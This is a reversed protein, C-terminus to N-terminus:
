SRPRSPVLQRASPSTSCNVPRCPSSRAWPCRRTALDRSPVPAGALRAAANLLSVLRERYLPLRAEFVAANYHVLLGLPLLAALFAVGLLPYSLWPSVRWRAVANAAPRLLFFLFFAILLPALVPEMVSLAAGVVCVTLLVLCATRVRDGPRAAPAAPIPLGEKDSM